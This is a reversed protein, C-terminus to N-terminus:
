IHRWNVDDADADDDDGDDDSDGFRQSFSNLMAKGPPTPMSWRLLITGVGRDRCNYCGAPIFGLLVLRTVHWSNSNVITGLIGTRGPILDPLM